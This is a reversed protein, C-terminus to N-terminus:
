PARHGARNFVTIPPQQPGAVRHVPGVGLREIDGGQGADRADGLRVEDAGEPSREALGRVAVQLATPDLARHEQQAFGVAAHGVDAQVDPERAQAREAPGEALNEAFRWGVIALAGVDFGDRRTEPHGPRTRATESFRAGSFGELTAWMSFAIVM